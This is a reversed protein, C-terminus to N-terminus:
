EIGSLVGVKLSHAQPAVFPSIPHSHQNSAYFIQHTSIAEM